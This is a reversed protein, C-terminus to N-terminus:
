EKPVTWQCLAVAEARCRVFAQVTTMGGDLDCDDIVAEDPDKTCTYGSPCQVGNSGGCVDPVKVCLGICDAGGSSPDCDDRTDDVCAMQDDPCTFSAIGGCVPGCTGICASGLGPGCGKREDRMCTYGTKCSLDEDDGQCYPFFPAARPVCLGICDAGGDEPDCDDYPNDVCQTDTPCATPVIGGCNPVCIGGCDAGNNDPVCDDYPDDLCTFGSDCPLAGIGGCFEYESSKVCSTGDFEFGSNCDCTYAEDSNDAKSGEVGNTTVMMEWVRWTIIM